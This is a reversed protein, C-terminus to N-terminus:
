NYCWAFRYVYVCGVVMAEDTEVYRSLNFLREGVENSWENQVPGM